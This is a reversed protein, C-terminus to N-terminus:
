VLLFKLQLGKIRHPFIFITKANQLVCQYTIQTKHCACLCRIVQMCHCLDLKQVYAGKSYFVSGIELCLGREQLPVFYMRTKTQSIKICVKDIMNGGPTVGKLAVRNVQVIATKLQLCPSPSLLTKKDQCFIGCLKTNIDLTLDFQCIHVTGGFKCDKKLWCKLFSQGIFARVERQLVPSAVIKNEAEKTIM